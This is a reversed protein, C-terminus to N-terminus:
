LCSPLSRGEGKERIPFGITLDEHERRITQEAM